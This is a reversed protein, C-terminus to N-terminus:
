VIKPVKYLSTLNKLNNLIDTQDMQQPMHPMHPMQQGMLQSSLQEAMPNQFQMMPNQITSDLSMVQNGIQTTQNLGLLNGIKNINFMEGQQNTPVFNNIMLPDIEQNNMQQHQMQGAHPMQQTNNDSNLIDMMEETTSNNSKKSKGKKSTKKSIKRSGTFSNRSETTKSRPM